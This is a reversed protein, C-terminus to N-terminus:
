ADEAIINAAVTDTVPGIGSSVFVRIVSGPTVLLRSPLLRPTVNSDDHERQDGDITQAVFPSTGAPNPFGTEIRQQYLVNGLADIVQMDYLRNGPTGTIVFSYFVSVLRWWGVNGLSINVGQPVGGGVATAPFNVEYQM